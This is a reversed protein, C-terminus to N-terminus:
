NNLLKLYEDNNNKFLEALEYNFPDDYNPNSLLLHISLLLTKINQAPSWKDNLIDLCIDGNSNINIHNIPTLFKINPPEFPYNSPLLLDLNFIKNQYPTDPPGFLKIKWHFVNDDMVLIDFFQIYDNSSILKIENQIRKLSTM